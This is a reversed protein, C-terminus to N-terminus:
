LDDRDSNDSANGTEETVVVASERPSQTMVDYHVAPPGDVVEGKENRFIEAHKHITKKREMREKKDPRQWHEDGAKEDGDGDGRGLVGEKSRSGGEAGAAAEELKKAAKKQAKKQAKREQHERQRAEAEVKWADKRLMREQASMESVLKKHDSPQLEPRHFAEAEAEAKKEELAADRAAVAEAAAAELLAIAQAEGQAAQAMLAAQKDAEHARRAEEAAKKGEEAQRAAEEKELREKEKETAAILAREEESIGAGLDEFRQVSTMQLLWRCEDLIVTMRAIFAKATASEQLDLAMARERLPAGPAVVLELLKDTCENKLRVLRETFFDSHGPEDIRAQQELAEKRIHVFKKELKAFKALIAQMAPPNEKMMAAHEREQRIREMEERHRREEADEADEEEEEDEEVIRTEEQLMKMAAERGTMHLERLYAPPLQVEVRAPRLPALKLCFRRHILLYSGEKTEERHFKQYVCEICVHNDCVNCQIVGAADDRCIICHGPAVPLPYRLLDADKRRKREPFKLDEYEQLTLRGEMFENDLLKVSPLAEPLETLYTHFVQEDEPLMNFMARQWVDYNSGITNRFESIDMRNELFQQCLKQLVENRHRYSVLSAPHVAERFMTQNPDRPGFHFLITMRLPLPISGLHVIVAEQMAPNDFPVMLKFNSGPPTWKLAYEEQPHFLEDPRCAMIQKFLYMDEMWVDRPTMDKIVLVEKRQKPAEDGFVFEWDQRLEFLEYYRQRDIAARREALLQKAKIEEKSPRAGM